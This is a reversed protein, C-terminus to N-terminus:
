AREALNIIPTLTDGHQPTFASRWPCLGGTYTIVRFAVQDYDFKLGMDRATRTKGRVDGIYYESLNALFLDGATGLTECHETFVIPYGYLTQLPRGAASNAPLFIPTASAGETYGLKPFETKCTQNAIWIVNSRGGPAWLRADMKIINEFVITKAAQGVEIVISIICAANILGTPEGAAGSGNIFKDDEKWAIAEAMKKPLWQGMSIPSWDLMENSVYCLCTLKHVNLEVDSFKPKSSTLQSEESKWYAQIGGFVTNTAHTTDDVIPFVIRPATMPIKTARPRVVAAELGIRDILAGFAGPILYAGESGISSTLGDGAAFSARAWATLREPVARRSEYVDMAFQGFADRVAFEDPQGRGLNLYGGSPDDALRMNGIEIRQFEPAAANAAVAPAAAQGAPLQRDIQPGRPRDLETKYMSLKEARDIETSLREIATDSDDFSKQEDESFERKEFTATQHLAEAKEVLLAREQQLEELTKM